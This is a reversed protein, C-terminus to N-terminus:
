FPPFTAGLHHLRPLRLFHYGAASPSHCVNTDGWVAGLLLYWVPYPLLKSTCLCWFLLTHWTKQRALCARSQPKQDPTSTMGISISATETPTLSGGPFFGRASSAPVASDTAYPPGVPLHPKPPPSGKTLGGLPAPVSRCNKTHYKSTPVEPSEVSGRALIPECLSWPPDPTHSPTGTDM